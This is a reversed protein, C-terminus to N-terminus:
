FFDADSSHAFSPVTNVIQFDRASLALDRTLTAFLVGAKGGKGDADFYLNGTDTEYIIRDQTDAARGTENAAFAGASLKGPQLGGFAANGLHLEDSGPRFGVIRDVNKRANLTSAFVFVDDGGGGSLIDNGADGYVTDDDAGCYIRDNGNDARIEGALSGKRGDYRDDGNGLFVHGVMRGANLVTNAGTGECELAIADVDAVIRGTNTLRFDESGNRSVATMEGRITGSNILESTTDDADGRMRVGYAAGWVEGEVEVVSNYAYVDITFFSSLTAVYGDKGVLVHHDSDVASESGINIAGFWASLTGQINVSNNSGTSIIGNSDTSAVLIGRAIFADEGDVLQKRLGTGTENSHPVYAM